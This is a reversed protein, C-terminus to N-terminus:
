VARHQDLKRAALTHVATRGPLSRQVLFNTATTRRKWACPATRRGMNGRNGGTTPQRLATGQVILHPMPEPSAVVISSRRAM